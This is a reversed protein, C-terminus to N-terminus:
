RVWLEDLLVGWQLQYQYNGVRSSVIDVQKGHVTITGLVHESNPSSHAIHHAYLPAAFSVAVILVFLILAAM